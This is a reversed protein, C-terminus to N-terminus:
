KVMIVTGAGSHNDGVDNMAVFVFGSYSLNNMIEQLSSAQIRTRTQNNWYSASGDYDVRITVYEKPPPQYAVLLSLAVVFLILGTISLKKM